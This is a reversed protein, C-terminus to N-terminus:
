EIPDDVQGAGADAITTPRSGSFLDYHVAAGRRGGCQHVGEDLARGWWRHQYARRSDAEVAVAAVLLQGLRRASATSEEGRQAACPLLRGTGRRRGADAGDEEAGPDDKGPPSARQSLLEGQEADPQAPPHTWPRLVSAPDGEVVLDVDDHVAELVCSEGTRDVGRCRRRDGVGRQGLRDTGGEM